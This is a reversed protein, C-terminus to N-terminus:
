EWFEPRCAFSDTFGLIKFTALEFTRIVCFIETMASMAKIMSDTRQSSQSAGKLSPPEHSTILANGSQMGKTPSKFFRM